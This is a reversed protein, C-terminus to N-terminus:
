TLFIQVLSILELWEEVQQDLQSLQWGWNTKEFVDTSM